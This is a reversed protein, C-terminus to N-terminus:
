FAFLVGSSEQMVPLDSKVEFTTLQQKILLAFMKKLLSRTFCVCVGVSCSVNVIESCGARIWPIHGAIVVFRKGVEFPLYRLLGAGGWLM